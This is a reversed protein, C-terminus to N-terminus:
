AGGESEDSEDSEAGGGGGGPRAAGGGGGGEPEGELLVCLAVHDAAAAGSALVQEPWSRALAELPVSTRPGQPRVGLTCQVRLRQPRGLGAALAREILSASAGRGWRELAGRWRLAGLAPFAAVLAVLSSGPACRGVEVEAVGPFLSGLRRADAQAPLQLLRLARVGRVACRACLAELAPLLVGPDDLLVVRRVHM